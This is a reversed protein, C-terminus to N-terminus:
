LGDSKPKSSKPAEKTDAPAVFLSLRKAKAEALYVSDGTLYEVGGLKVAKVVIFEKDESAKAKETAM